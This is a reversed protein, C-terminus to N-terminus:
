IEIIKTDYDLSPRATNSIFSIEFILFYAKTRNNILHRAKKHFVRYLMKEDPHGERYGEIVISKAVAM